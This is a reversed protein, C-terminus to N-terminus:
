FGEKTVGRTYCKSFVEIYIANCLRKLTNEKFLFMGYFYAWKNLNLLFSNIM